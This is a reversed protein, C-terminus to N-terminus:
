FWAKKKMKSQKQRQWYYGRAGRLRNMLEKLLM